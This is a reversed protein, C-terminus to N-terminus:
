TYNGMRDLSAVNKMYLRKSGHRFVADALSSSLLRKLRCKVLTVAKIAAAIYTRQEM